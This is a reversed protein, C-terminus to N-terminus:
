EHFARPSLRIQEPADVNRRQDFFVTSETAPILEDDIVSHTSWTLFFLAGM